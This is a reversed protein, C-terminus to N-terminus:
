VGYKLVLSTGRTKANPKAAGASEIHVTQGLVTHQDHRLERQEMCVLDSSTRCLVGDVSDM